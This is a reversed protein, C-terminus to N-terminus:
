SIDNVYKRITNDMFFDTFRDIPKIIFPIIALGCIIPLGRQLIKSSQLIKKYGINSNSNEVIYKTLKVTQNVALGPLALSAIGHWLLTDIARDLQKEPKEDAVKVITDVGIYLFSLGYLPKLLRPFQHRFAEGLENSYALPRLFKVFRFYAMFQFPERDSLDFDNKQKEVTKGNSVFDTPRYEGTPRYEEPQFLVPKKELEGEEM